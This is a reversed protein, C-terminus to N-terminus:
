TGMPISPPPSGGHPPGPAHLRLPLHRAYLEFDTDTTYISVTRRLAVACILYDVASGSIGAARCTNGCRAAEEFDEVSLAEDPFARLALRLRDFAEQDRIGSLVEQRVPGVLLIRRQRTLEGWEWLHRREDASLRDQKRRLAMSWIPTDVLVRM